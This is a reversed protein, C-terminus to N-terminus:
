AGTKPSLYKVLAAGDNPFEKPLGFRPPAKASTKGDTQSTLYYAVGTGSVKAHSFLVVLFEKEIVGEWAKGKIKCRRCVATTGEIGQTTLVEDHGTCFVLAKDSKFLELFSLTYEAFLRWAKYGDGGSDAASKLELMEFLKSISDVVIVKVAPDSTQKVFWERFEKCFKIPDPTSPTWVASDPAEFPVGKRELDAFRSSTWDLNRFTMSKGTGSPGVILTMPKIM